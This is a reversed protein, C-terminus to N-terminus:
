SWSLTVSGGYPVPNPAAGFYDFTPPVCTSEASAGEPLPEAATGSVPTPSSAPGGVMFPATSQPCAAAPSTASSEAPAPGAGYLPAAAVCAAVLALCSAPRFSKRLMVRGVTANDLKVILIARAAA